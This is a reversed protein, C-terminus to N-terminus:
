THAGGLGEEKVVFELVDVSGFPEAELSKLEAVNLLKALIERGAVQESGERIRKRRSLAESSRLDDREITVVSYKSSVVARLGTRYGM